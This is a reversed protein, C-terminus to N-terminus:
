LSGLIGVKLDRHILGKSHVYDVASVIQEFIGLVASRERSLTNAMLWDKLTELRCLQMQLYLYLKPVVAKENKVKDKGKEGEEEGTSHETNGHSSLTFDITHHHNRLNDSSENDGVSGGYSSDTFVVSKPQDHLNSHDKSNGGRSDEFVISYSDEQPDLDANSGSDASMSRRQGTGYHKFPLVPHGSCCTDSAGERSVSSEPDDSNKFVVGFSDKREEYVLDKNEDGGLSFSGSEDTPLDESSHVSFEGSGTANHTLLQCDLDGAACPMINVLLSPRQRLPSEETAPSHSIDSSLSKHTLDASPVSSDMTPSFCDGSRDMLFVVTM